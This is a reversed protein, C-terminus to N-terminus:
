NQARRKDDKAEKSQEYAIIAKAVEDSFSDGSRACRMKLKGIILNTEIKIDKVSFSYTM